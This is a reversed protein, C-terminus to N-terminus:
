WAWDFVYEGYSHTKLYCPAAGILRGHEHVTLHRPTWGSEPGVCGSRELVSLFAHSTFPNDSGGIADWAGAEIADIRDVLNFEMDQNYWEAELGLRPRRRRSHPSM